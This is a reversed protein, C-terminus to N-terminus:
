VDADGDVVGAIANKAAEAACRYGEYSFFVDVAAICSAGRAPVDRVDLFNCLSRQIVGHVFHLYGEISGHAVGSALAFDECEAALCRAILVASEGNVPLAALDSRTLVRKKM